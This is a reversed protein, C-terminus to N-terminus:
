QLIASLAYLDGEPFEIVLAGHEFVVSPDWVQCEEILKSLRRVASINGLRFGLSSCDLYEATRDLSLACAAVLLVTVSLSADVNKRAFSEAIPVFYPLVAYHTSFQM